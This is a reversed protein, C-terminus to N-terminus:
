AVAARARVPQAVDQRHVSFAADSQLVEDVVSKRVRLRSLPAVRPVGGAPSAGGARFLDLQVAVHQEDRPHAERLAGLEGAGAHRRDVFQRQSTSRDLAHGVGAEGRQAGLRGQLQAPRQVELYEVGGGQGCQRCGVVAVDEEVEFAVRQELGAVDPAQVVQEPEYFRVVREPREPCVTKGLLGDGEGFEEFIHGGPPRLMRAHVDVVVRRVLARVQEGDGGAVAHPFLGDVIQQAVVHEDVEVRDHTPPHADAVM